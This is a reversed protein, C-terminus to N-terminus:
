LKDAGRHHGRHLVNSKVCIAADPIRRSREYLLRSPGM